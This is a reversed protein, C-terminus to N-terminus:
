CCLTCVSILSLDQRSLDILINWIPVLHWIPRDCKRRMATRGLSPRLRRTLTGSCALALLSQEFIYVDDDSASHRRSHTIPNGGLKYVPSTGNLRQAPATSVSTALVFKTAGSVFAQAPWRSKPNILGVATGPRSTFRSATGSCAAWEAFCALRNADPYGCAISFVGQAFLDKLLHDVKAAQLGDFLCDAMSPILGFRREPAKLLV